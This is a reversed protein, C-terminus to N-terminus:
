EDRLPGRCGNEPIPVYDGGGDACSQAKVAGNRKEILFMLSNLADMRQKKTLRKPDVTDYTHMNNLQTLEKRAAKEGRDGFRKLGDRISFHQAMAVGIIEELAASGDYTFSAHDQADIHITGVEYDRGTAKDRKNCQDM